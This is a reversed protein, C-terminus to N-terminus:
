KSRSSVNKLQASSGNNADAAYLASVKDKWIIVSDKAAQADPSDPVLELYEKMHLVANEYYKKEGALTALNFQGEPWTPFMELAANYEKIAKDTDKEKFAYEALVQHERASEPMTPKVAAARWAAAQVKFQEFQSDMQAKVQRRADAALFDLAAKLKEDKSEGGRYYPRQVNEPADHAYDQWTVRAMLYGGQGTENSFKTWLIRALAIGLNYKGDASSYLIYQDTVKVDKWGWSMGEEVWKVAEQRDSPVFEKEKRASWAQPQLMQWGLVLALGISFANKRGSM